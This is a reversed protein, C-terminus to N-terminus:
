KNDNKNDNLDKTIYLEDTPPKIDTLPSLCSNKISSPSNITVKNIVSLGDLLSSHGSMFSSETMTTMKDLLPNNILVKSSESAIRVASLSRYANEITASVVPSECLLPNKIFINSDETMAKLCKNKLPNPTILGKNIITAKAYESLSLYNSKSSEITLKDIKRNISEQVEKSVKSESIQKKLENILANKKDIEVQSDIAIKALHEKLHVVFTGMEDASGALRNVIMLYQKFIENDMDYPYRITHDIESWAEEFVTRVQVECGITTSLIKQKIIYHISRYGHKHPKAICKHQTYEKLYDNSDGERYYATPEEKLNYNELIYDHVNKWEDKFLHLVRLGIIDDIESIYTDFTINRDHKEIKKRIIKEILHEANKVRYRVSHVNPIKVFISFLISLQSELFPINNIHDSYIRELEEWNLGTAIFESEEISFKKLFDNQALLQKV